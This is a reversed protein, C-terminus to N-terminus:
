IIIEKDIPSLKGEALLFVRGMRRAIRQSHTVIVFTQTFEKNLGLILEMLADSTHSDLNGTPEDALLIDPKNMLGRALAVRQSEGGSLEGPRHNLREKLGMSCLLFEARERAAKKDINGILAPFMANELATFDQMLNFSQYVFGVNRNRYNELFGNKQEFINNKQFLVKGDVPRDLGGMIHLLTSKGTGSAGVIGIMEGSQVQLNAGSLVEISESKSYYTKCLGVIELLPSTDNMDSGM